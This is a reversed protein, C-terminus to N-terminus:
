YFFHIIFTFKFTIKTLLIYSSLNIKQSVFFQLICFKMVNEDNEVTLEHLVAIVARSRAL